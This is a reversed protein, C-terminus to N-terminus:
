WGPPQPPSQGQGGGELMRRLDNIRAEIEKIQMEIYNRESELANKYNELYMLEDQPSFPPYYQPYGYSPYQPFIYPYQPPYGWGPYGTGIPQWWM